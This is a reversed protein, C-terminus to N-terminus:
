RRNKKRDEPFIIPFLVSLTTLVLYQQGLLMKIIVPMGPGNFFGSIKVSIMAIAFAIALSKGMDVLGIPKPKWYDGSNM